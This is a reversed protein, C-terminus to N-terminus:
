PKFVTVPGTDPVETGLLTSTATSSVHATEYLAVMAASSISGDQTATANAAETVTGATASSIAGDQIGAATAAELIATGYVATADQTGIAGAPESITGTQAAATEGDQVSSAAAAELIAPVYIARVDVTADASATESVLLGLGLTDARDIAAVAEALDVAISRRARLSVNCVLM